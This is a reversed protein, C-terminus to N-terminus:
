FGLVSAQVWFPAAVVRRGRNTPWAPPTCTPRPWALSTIVGRSTSSGPSCSSAHTGASSRHPLCLQARDSVPPRACVWGSVGAVIRERSCPADLCVRRPTWCHQHLAGTGPWCGTRWTYRHRHSHGQVDCPRHKSYRRISAQPTLVSPVNGSHALPVFHSATDTAFSEIQDLTVFHSAADKGFNEIQDLTAFHSATDTAFSEPHDLPVLHSATGTAVVSLM